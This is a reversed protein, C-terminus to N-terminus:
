NMYKTSSHSSSTRNRAQQLITCSRTKLITCAIQLNEFVPLHIIFCVVGSWIDVAPIVSFCIKVSLQVERIKGLYSQGSSKSQYNTIHFTISLPPPPLLSLSPPTSPLLSPTPKTPEKKKNAPFSYQLSAIRLWGLSVVVEHAFM